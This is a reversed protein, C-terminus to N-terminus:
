RHVEVQGVQELEHGVGDGVTLRHHAAVPAEGEALEVLAGGPEGVPQPAEADRRAVVHAEVEVARGLM